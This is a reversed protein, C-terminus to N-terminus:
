LLGGHIRKPIGLGLAGASAAAELGLPGLEAAEGRWKALTSRVVLWAAEARTCSWASALRELDAVDGGTVRLGVSHSRLLEAPLRLRSGM